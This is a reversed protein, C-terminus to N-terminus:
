RRTKARAKPAPPPAPPNARPPPKARAGSVDVPRVLAYAAKKRDSVVVRRALGHDVLNRLAPHVSSFPISRGSACMRQFLDSALIPAGDLAKLVRYVEIRARTPPLAAGDFPTRWVEMEPPTVLLRPLERRRLRAGLLTSGFRPPSRQVGAM